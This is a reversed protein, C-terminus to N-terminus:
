IPKRIHRFGFTVEGSANLAARAYFMRNRVIHIAGPARIVRDGASPSPTAEITKSLHPAIWDNLLFQEQRPELETLPTGPVLQSDLIDLM